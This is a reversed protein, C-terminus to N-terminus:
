TATTLGYLSIVMWVDKARSNSVECVHKHILCPLCTLWFAKNRQSQNWVDIALYPRHRKHTETKSTERPSLWLTWTFTSPGQSDPLDSSHQEDCGWDKTAPFFPGQKNSNVRNCVSALLWQLVPFVIAPDVITEPIAFPLLCLRM